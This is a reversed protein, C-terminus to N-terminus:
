LGEKSHEERHCNACLLSCKDLEKKIESWRLILNKDSLCFDKKNKDRHHFDLADNCKNYGCNECQGGKYQVAWEKIKRRMQNGAKFTEPICEFCYIRTAGYKLPEFEKKCYECVKIRSKNRNKGRQLIKVNQLVINKILAFMKWLQEM